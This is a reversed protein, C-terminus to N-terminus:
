ALLWPSLLSRVFEARAALHSEEGKTAGGLNGETVEKVLLVNHKTYDLPCFLCVAKTRPPMSIAIRNVRVSYM